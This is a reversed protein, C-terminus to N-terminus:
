YFRYKLRVKKGYKWRKKRANFYVRRYYVLRKNEDYHYEYVKQSYKGQHIVKVLLDGNWVYAITDFSYGVIKNLFADPYELILRNSDDYEYYKIPFFNGTTDKKYRYSLTTANKNKDFQYLKEYNKMNSLITEPLHKKYQIQLNEIIGFPNYSHIVTDNQYSIIRVLQQNKNLIPIVQRNQLYSMLEENDTPFNNVKTKIKNNSIRLTSDKTLQGKDNYFYYIITGYKCKWGSCNVTKILRSKEDFYDIETNKYKRYNNTKTIIKEINQATLSQNSTTLIIFFLLLHYKMTKSNLFISLYDQNYTLPFM